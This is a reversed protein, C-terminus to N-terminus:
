REPRPPAFRWGFVVDDDAEAVGGLSTYLAMAAENTRGTVVWMKSAGAERAIAEAEGVLARAIGRRRYREEVGLDYILLMTDGDARPLLHAILAGVARGEVQAILLRNRPDDLFATAGAEDPAVYDALAGLASM